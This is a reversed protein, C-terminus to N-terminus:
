SKRFSKIFVKQSVLDDIVKHLPMGAAASVSMARANSCTWTSQMGGPIEILPNNM